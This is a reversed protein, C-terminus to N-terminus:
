TPRCCGLLLMKIKNIVVTQNCISRASLLFWICTPRHALFSNKDTLAAGCNSHTSVTTESLAPSSKPM